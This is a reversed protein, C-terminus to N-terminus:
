YIGEKKRLQSYLATVKQDGTIDFRSLFDNIASIQDFNPLITLHLGLYRSMASESKINFFVGQKHWIGMDNLVKIKPLDNISECHFSKLRDYIDQHFQGRSHQNLVDFQANRIKLM